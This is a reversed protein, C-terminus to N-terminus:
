EEPKAAVTDAFCSVKDRGTQKADYLANDARKMGGGVTCDGELCLSLGISVTYSVDGSTTSVPTSRVTERLREATARAKELSTEILIAGFEEGGLRGMIDTARLTQRITAALAKLVTDGVDHGFRDNISKFHDIDLMMFVMVHGYRKSRELEEDARRLFQRRNAIGTLSDTTALIDLERVKRELEMQTTKLATVDSVLVFFGRVEDKHTDPIYSALTYGTSGDAKTLTREFVQPKGDLAAQIFHENKAYLEEGLLERIPIGSMQEQTRGFWELYAKNAYGCRLDKRWYGVMGPVNDTLTRIFRENEELARSAEALQIDQARRRRQIYALAAVSVVVALAFLGGQQLAKGRWTALAKDIDRSIGLVLPTDMRLSPPQITRVALMRDEGTLMIKGKFISSIRKSDRHQSFYSGPKALNQGITGERTPEVLFVTGEGHVLMAWMDPAYLVSVLLPDFFRPDLIALVIGNFTGGPGSIMKAFSMTYVGLATKFPASVYLRKPDPADRVEIFYPRASFDSGLLETRNSARIVGKDDYIALARVGTLADTLTKLRHNIEMGYGPEGLHSRLDDLVSDLAALQQEVLQNVVRTQFLLREQERSILTTRENMLSSGLIFGLAAIACALMTWPLVFSGHPRNTTTM